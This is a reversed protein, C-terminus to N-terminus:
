QIKNQAEGELKTIGQKFVEARTLRSQYGQTPAGVAFPGHMYEKSNSGYQGALQRDLFYPVGLEIAGPGLDDKPFIREMANSIVEFDRNNQFFQFGANAHQTHDSPSTGKPATTPSTGNVNYGVLGGIIGGGILAGAAVGSTKLFDRRTSLNKKEESM